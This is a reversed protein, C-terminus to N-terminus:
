MSKKAQDAMGKAAGEVRAAAGKVAGSAQQATGKAAGAMEHAKGKAQGRLEAAAGTKQSGALDQAVEKAKNVVKEPSPPPPPVSTLLLECPLSVSPSAGGMEIGDVVKDAVARDVQKLSDKATEAATKHLPFGTSFAARPVIALRPAQLMAARGFTAKALFSM